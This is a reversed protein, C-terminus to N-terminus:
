ITIKLDPKLEFEGGRILISISEINQKPYKAALELTANKLDPLQDGKGSFLGTLISYSARKAVSTTKYTVGAGAVVEEAMVKMQPYTMNTMDVNNGNVLKFRGNYKDRCIRAYYEPSVFVAIDVDGAAPNRLSSGQIRVDDNPFGHKEVVHLLDTKFLVFQEASEFLYPYGDPASVVTVWNSMETTLTEATRRKAERSGTFIMDEVTADDLNLRVAAHYIHVFDKTNYKLVFKDNDAVRAKINQIVTKLNSFKAKFYTKVAQVIQTVYDQAYKVKIRLSDETAAKELLAMEYEDLDNAFKSRDSDGSRLFFTGDDGQIDTFIIKRQLIGDGKPSSPTLELVGVDVYAGMAKAGMLDAESELGVDDNVPIRGKMQLTPKVRGQKQQVVHWAEHPLHKEQGSAIHIDTGQAYAHAQLQTPKDSNYHVKVDDMSYGSLNELGSKLNDPLGTDNDKKQIPLAFRGQIPEEEEISQKQLPITKIQLEEEEIGKKQISLSSNANVMAQLQLAQKVQESNDATKQLQMQTATAPHQNSFESTASNNNRKQTVNLSKKNEQIQNIYSNM